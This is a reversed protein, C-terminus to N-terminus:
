FFELAGTSEPERQIDVEFDLDEYECVCLTVHFRTDANLDITFHQLYGHELLGLHAACQSDVINPTSMGIYPFVRGLERNFTGCCMNGCESIADTFAQDTMEEPAVKNIGAFHAQTAEDPTFYILIMLRFLYSAVTLIVVKSEQIDPLDPSTSISTLTDTPGVLSSKIGQMVMHDFGSKARTSIM